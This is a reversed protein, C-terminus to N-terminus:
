LSSKTLHTFETFWSKGKAVARGADWQSCLILILQLRQFDRM